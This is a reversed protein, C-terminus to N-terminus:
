WGWWVHIEAHSDDRVQVPGCLWFDRLVEAHPHRYGRHNPDSSFVSFWPGIASAVGPTWNANAGHHMVQFVATRSIRANGVFRILTEIRIRTNLYGDGTYLVAAREGPRDAARWGRILEGSAIFPPDGEFTWGYNARCGYPASAGIPGAYLFLSIQNRDRSNAGFEEDYQDKLSVLLKARKERQKEALLQHRLTGVKGIWKEGPQLALTEDNYPVFEWVSAARLASGPRLMSVSGIKGKPEDGAAGFVDDPMPGSEFDPRYSDEHEPWRDIAPQDPNDNRAEAPGPGEGDSPPVFVVRHVGRVGVENLYGVPNIFFSFLADDVAIGEHFALIIRQAFPVFPLLLVDVEFRGLLDVVGSIHDRDFHSLVVLDLLQKKAVYGGAFRDLANELLAEASATGCDYVWLFYVDGEKSGMWGSPCNGLAGSAFLGQGVPHFAYRVGHIDTRAM